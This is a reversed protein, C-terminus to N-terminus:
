TWSVFILRISQNKASVDMASRADSVQGMGCRREQGFTYYVDISLHLKCCCVLSTIQLEEKRKRFQKITPYSHYNNM